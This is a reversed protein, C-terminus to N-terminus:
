GARRAQEVGGQPKKEPPVEKRQLLDRLFEKDKRLEEVTETLHSIKEACRPNTCEGYPPIPEQTSNTNPNQNQEDLMMSGIGRLLWNANLNPSQRLLTMLYKDPIKENGNMWNSVQTKTKILLLKRFDENSLGLSTVYSKLRANISEM